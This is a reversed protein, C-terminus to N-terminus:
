VNFQSIIDEGFRTEEMTVCYSLNLVMNYGHSYNYILIIKSTVYPCGVFCELM